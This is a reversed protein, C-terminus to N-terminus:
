ARSQLSTPLAARSCAGLNLRDGHDARRRMRAGRFDGLHTYFRPRSQSARLKTQAKKIHNTRVTEVALTKAILINM